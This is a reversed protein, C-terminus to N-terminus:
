ESHIMDKLYIKNLDIKYLTYFSFFVWVMKDHTIKNVSRSPYRSNQTIQNNDYFAEEDSIMKTNREGVMKKECVEKLLM